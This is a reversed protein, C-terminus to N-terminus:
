WCTSRTPCRATLTDAAGEIRPLVVPPLYSRRRRRLLREGIALVGLSAVAVQMLPVRDGARFADPLARRSLAGPYRPLALGGAGPRRDRRAEEGRTLKLREVLAQASSISRRLPTRRPESPRKDPVAATRSRPSRRQQHSKAAMPAHDFARRHAANIRRYWWIAIGTEDFGGLADMLALLPFTM